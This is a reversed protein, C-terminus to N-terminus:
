GKQTCPVRWTQRLADVLDLFDEHVAQAALLAIVASILEGFWFDGVVAGIAAVIFIGMSLLLSALREHWPYIDIPLIGDNMEKCDAM